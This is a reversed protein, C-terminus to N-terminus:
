KTAQRAQDFVTAIARLAAPGDLRTIEGREMRDAAERAMEAALRYGDKLAGLLADRMMRETTTRPDDAM